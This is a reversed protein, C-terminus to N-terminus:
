EGQASETEKQLILQEPLAAYLKHLWAGDSQVGARDAALLVAGVVPRVDLRKLAMQPAVPWVTQRITEMLLPGEGYFVSGGLVADCPVALLDLRRAIALIATGIEQGQARVLDQAVTDGAKAARFVLPALGCVAEWAIRGQAIHEALTEMDRVDFYRLVDEQLRTPHGRGDWARFAAGMAARGMTCGGARDGTMAGLAPLRFTQGDRGVGGANFGSGCVVGVGYPRTSGARLVARLDNYVAVHRCVPLAPLAAQLAAFDPPTDAGALCFAGWEAVRGSLAQGAAQRISTLAGAMGKGQHNSGGARGFGIVRADASIALAETKSNGGDVGLFIQETM